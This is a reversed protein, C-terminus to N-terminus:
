PPQGDAAYRGPPTGVVASFERVLHAQDYYGLEAALRAWDVSAGDSRELAEQLRLRRAVWAPGVGIADHFLRHLSRVSLHLEAALAGARSLEPRAVLLEVARQALAATADLTAPLVPALAAELLDVAEDPDDHRELARVLSAGDLGLVDAPVARDALARMPEGLRQRVVGPRLRAGIVRGAGILTRDFRQRQPGYLLARHHEVVLHAAPHAVVSQQHDPRGSLDWRVVWYWDVAPALERRPRWLGLEWGTAPTRLVGRQPSEIREAV